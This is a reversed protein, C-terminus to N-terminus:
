VSVPFPVRFLFLSWHTGYGYGQERDPERKRDRTTHILWLYGYSERGLCLHLLQPGIMSLHAISGGIRHRGALCNYNHHIWSKGSSAGVWFPPRWGIIQGFKVSFQMFMFFIPSLPCVYLIKSHLDM